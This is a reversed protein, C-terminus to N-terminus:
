VHARGIESGNPIVGVNELYVLGGAGGGGGHRVGGAGGGGVVLMSVERVNSPVTWSNPNSPNTNITAFFRIVCDNGVQSISARDMEGVASSCLGSTETGAAANAVPVMPDLFVLMQLTLATVVFFNFATRAASRKGSPM